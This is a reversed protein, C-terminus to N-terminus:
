LGLHDGPAPRHVDAGNRDHLYKAFAQQSDSEGHVLYVPPRHDMCEYWRALDDQDGHASLGGVTHVQAKVPVRMGHIRVTKHGDVLKRGLSGYAQYGVIIVQHREDGLNHKLHHVIRGGNCMGSGAIVIAGSSVRNIAMSDESTRSLNLNPLLPMGGNERRLRTAEEDYLHPYEWYVKSAEIAMPSDLVIPQEEPLKGEHKMRALWSLIVHSRGVAFAPMLVHGGDALSDQITKVFRAYREELDVKDRVKHGYTSELLVLDARELAGMGSGGLVALPEGGVGASSGYSRGRPVGSRAM